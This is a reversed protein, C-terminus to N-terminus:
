SALPPPAPPWRSLALWYLLLLGSPPFVLVLILLWRSYGAHPLAEWILMLVLFQGVIPFLALLLVWRSWGLRGCVLWIPLLVILPWFLLLEYPGVAM